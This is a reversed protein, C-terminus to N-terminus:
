VWIFDQYALKKEILNLDLLHEQTQQIAEESIQSQSWETLKLWEQVDEPKQEYKEAIKETLNPLEKFHLTTQNLTGLMQQLLEENNHIYEETTVIVFCPWPTPCDALRRFIGADVLPKTTFHEWMFYQARDAPLTEIAGNLDQVLEFKLDEIPWGQNEANVYTLLHSGSGYRSIAATQNKLEELHQFPSNAAVHIGWILPTAIFNQLIKFPSGEAIEKVIGETLMLAVDIEKNKLAESLEGTGGLFDQWKVDIGNKRFAKDGKTIHWPFNFHEPVGGVRITKM